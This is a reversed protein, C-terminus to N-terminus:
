SVTKKDAGVPMARCWSNNKLVLVMILYVSILLLSYNYKSKFLVIFGIVAIPFILVFTIINIIKEALSPSFFRSLIILLGEGGDLTLVPLSNFLGLALNAIIFNDFMATNFGKKVLYFVGSLLFNIFVASYTIFLEKLDTLLNIRRVIKIDFLKVRVAAPSEGIIKMALLHALEHFFAALFCALLKHSTDCLIVATYLVVVLFDIEVFTRNVQFKM